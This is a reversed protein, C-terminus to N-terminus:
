YISDDIVQENNVQVDLDNYLAVKKQDNTGVTINPATASASAGTMVEVDGNADLSLAVSPQQTMKVGKLFEDTSPTGLGTLAYGTGGSAAPGTAVQDGGGDTALEGTAVTKETGLSVADVNSDQMKLIVRKGVGSSANTSEIAIEPLKNVGTVNPVTDTVMKKTDIQKVFTDSTPTIGTIANGKGDAGVAAGSATAKVKQKTPTVTVSPASAVFTTNVGLVLTGNGKVLEVTDAWALNGLGSLDIRTNGVREWSKTAPTTSEDIVVVYEDYIDLQEPDDTHVCYVNKENASDASMTGTYEVNNYVVKVGAPIDAVVPVGNGNWCIIRRGNAAVAARAVPDVIDYVYDVGGIRFGLETLELNPM